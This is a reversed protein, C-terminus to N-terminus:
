REDGTRLSFFDGPDMKDKAEVFLKECINRLEKSDSFYIEQNVTIKVQKFDDPVELIYLMRNKYGYVSYEVKYAETHAKTKDKKKLDSSRLAQSLDDFFESSGIKNEQLYPLDWKVKISLIEQKFVNLSEGRYAGYAICCLFVIVVVSIKVRTKMKEGRVIM